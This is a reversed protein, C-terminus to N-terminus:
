GLVKRWFEAGVTEDIKCYAAQANGERCMYVCLVENEGQAIFEVYCVFYLLGM